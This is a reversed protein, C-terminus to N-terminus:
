SIQEPNQYEAHQVEGQSISGVPEVADNDRDGPPREPLGREGRLRVRDCRQFRRFAWRM